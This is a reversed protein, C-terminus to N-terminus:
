GENLQNLVSESIDFNSFVNQVDDNDELTEIFKLVQKAQELDDIEIKNQPVLKVGSTSVEISKSELYSHVDNLNSPTATILYFQDDESDIDDAGAELIYDTLTEEDIASKEVEIQGERDFMYMVSNAAGLNGGTKNFAFRIASITRNRNDTLCDVIVAVNHPGYGEYIINEWNEDKGGGIGKQIARKINDNPMNNSKALAIASRLRPNSGPDEGGLRAAVTLEKIIKTFVKSRKADAAGKRHKITSWKNHGSM